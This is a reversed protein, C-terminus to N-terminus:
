NPLYAGTQHQQCVTPLSSSHQFLQPNKWRERQLMRPDSGAPRCVCSVDWVAQPPSFPLSITHFHPFIHHLYSPLIACSSCHSPYFRIFFLVSLHTLSFLTLPPFFTFFFISVANIHAICPSQCFSYSMYFDLVLLSSYLRLIPKSFSCISM